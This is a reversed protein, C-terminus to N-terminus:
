DGFPSGSYDTSVVRWANSPFILYRRAPERKWHLVVDGDYYVEQGGPAGTVAIHSTTTAADGSIAIGPTSTTIYVPGSDRFYYVLRARLQDTDANMPDHYTDSVGGMVGGANRHEASREMEDLDAAIRERDPPLPATGATYVALVVCLVGVVPLLKKTVPTM